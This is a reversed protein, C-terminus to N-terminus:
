QGIVATDNGTQVTDTGTSDVNVPTVTISDTNSVPAANNTCATFVLTLILATIVRKM